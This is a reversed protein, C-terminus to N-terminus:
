KAFDNLSIYRQVGLSYPAPLYIDLPRVTLMIHAHPNHRDTDHIAADACM